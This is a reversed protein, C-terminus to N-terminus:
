KNWVHNWEAGRLRGLRHEVLKTLLSSIVMVGIPYRDLCM